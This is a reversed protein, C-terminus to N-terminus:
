VVALFAVKTSLYDSNMMRKASSVMLKTLRVMLFCSDLQILM